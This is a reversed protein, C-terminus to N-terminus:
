YSCASAGDSCLTCCFWPWAYHCVEVCLGGIKRSAAPYWLPGPQNAHAGMFEQLGMPLSRNALKATFRVVMGNEIQASILVGSKESRLVGVEIIVKQKLKSPDLVDYTQFPRFESPVEVFDTPSRSHLLVEEKFKKKDTVESPKALVRPALLAAAGLVVTSMSFLCIGIKM